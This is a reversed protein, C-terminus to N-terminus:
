GVPGPQEAVRRHARPQLVARQSAGVLVAAERDGVALARRPGDRGLPYPAGAVGLPAPEGPHRHQCALFHLKLEKTGETVARFHKLLVDWEDRGRKLHRFARGLPLQYTVVALTLFVLTFLFVIWSLYALYAFCGIIIALHMCLHPMVTLASTITPVDGTLTGLLRHSGLEELTRLRTGLIQRCLQLRLDSMARETFGILLVHSVFRSFPLMLCLGVFAWIARSTSGGGSLTSNIVALLGTNSMGSIIGAGVAIAILMKPYRINKSVQILFSSVKAFDNIVKM